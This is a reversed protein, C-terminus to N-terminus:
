KKVGPDPSGPPPGASEGPAAPRNLGPYNTGPYSPMAPPPTMGEGYAGPGSSPAATGPPVAQMGSQAANEDSVKSPTMGGSCGASILVGLVVLYVCIVKM